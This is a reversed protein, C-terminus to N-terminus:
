AVGGFMSEVDAMVSSPVSGQGSRRRVSGDRRMEYVTVLGSPHDVRVYGNAMLELRHGSSEVM